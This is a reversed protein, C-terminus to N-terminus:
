RQGVQRSLNPLSQRAEITELLRHGVQRVKKVLYLFLFAVANTYMSQTYTPYTPYTPCRKSVRPHIGITAAWGVGILNPVPLAPQASSM